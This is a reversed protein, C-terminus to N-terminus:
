ANSKYTAVANKIASTASEEGLLAKDVEPALANTMAAWHESQYQTPSDAAIKAYLPITQQGGLFPDAYSTIRPDTFASKMTPLFYSDKFDAVQGDLTLRTQYLLDWVALSKPSGKSVVWGTGGWIGSIHGGTSFRPPLTIAWKGKQNPNGSVIISEYWSPMYNGIVKGQALAATGAGGYFNSMLQYSNSKVLDMMLQLAQVAEPSDVGFDGSETFFSGGLQQFFLGFWTLDVGNTQGMAGLYVGHKSHTAAGVQLFEDWTSIEPVNYKEFLDTRKYYPTLPFNSEVGYLQGQNAYAIWRSEYFEDRISAVHPTIDLLYAGALDSTMFKSWLTIDVGLIDPVQGHASYTALAKTILDQADQVVTTTHYQFPKTQGAATRQLDTALGPDQVWLSLQVKGSTATSASSGGGCAAVAPTLLGIVLGSGGYGLFRRRSVDM